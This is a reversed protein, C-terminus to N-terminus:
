KFVRDKGVFNPSQISLVKLPIESVVEEVSHYTNFPIVIYDGKQIVFSDEGLKMIAKGEEVYISETHNEHKHSPVFGKVWVVFSSSLSDTYLKEVHINDFGLTDM